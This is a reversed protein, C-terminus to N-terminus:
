SIAQTEFDFECGRQRPSWKKTTSPNSADSATRQMKKHISRSHGMGGPGRRGKRNQWDAEMEHIHASDRLMIECLDRTAKTCVVKGEFGERVLKPILGSHDIHAHTLLILSIEDPRYPRVSRNREELDKNGQFLGCDVLWKLSGSELLTASGDGNWGRGLIRSRM